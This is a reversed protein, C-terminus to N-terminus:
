MRMDIPCMSISGYSVFASSITAVRPSPPTSAAFPRTAASCFKLGDAVSLGVKQESGVRGVVSARRPITGRMSGATVPESTSFAADFAEKVVGRSAVPFLIASKAVAAPKM